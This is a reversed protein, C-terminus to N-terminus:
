GGTGPLGGRFGDCREHAAGANLAFESVHEEPNSVDVGPFQHWASVLRFQAFGKSLDRTRSRRCRKFQAGALARLQLSSRVPAHSARRVRGVTSREPPVFGWITGGRTLWTWYSENAKEQILEFGPRLGSQRTLRGADILQPSRGYIWSM